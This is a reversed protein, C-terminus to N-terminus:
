RSSLHSPLQSALSGQIRANHFIGRPIKGGDETLELGREFM